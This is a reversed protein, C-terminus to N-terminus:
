VILVNLQVHQRFVARLMSSERQMPTKGVLHIFLIIQRGTMIEESRMQSQYDLFINHALCIAHILAIISM